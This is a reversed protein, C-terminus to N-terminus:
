DSEYVVTEVQKRKARKIARKAGWMTVAFEM